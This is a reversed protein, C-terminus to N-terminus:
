FGGKLRGLISFLIFFSIYKGDRKHIKGEKGLHHPSASMLLLCDCHQTESPSLVAGRGFPQPIACRAQPSSPLPYNLSSEPSVIFTFHPSFGHATFSPSASACISFRSFHRSTPAVILKPCAYVFCSSGHVVLGM